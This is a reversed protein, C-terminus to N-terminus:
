EEAWSLPWLRRGSSFLCTHLFLLTRVSHNNLERDSADVSEQLASHAGVATDTGGGSHVGGSDKLVKSSLHELESSVGALVELHLADRGAVKLEGDATILLEVGQDLGGNSTTSHNGVDVLGKDQLGAALLWSSALRPRSLL